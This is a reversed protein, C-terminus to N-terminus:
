LINCHKATLSIRPNINLGASKYCLLNNFYVPLEIYVGANAPLLAEGRESATGLGSCHILSVETHKRELRPYSQVGREQKCAVQDEQSAGKFM